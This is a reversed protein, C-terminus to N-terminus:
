ERILVNFKEIKGGQKKSQLHKYFWPSNLVPSYDVKRKWAVTTVNGTLEYATAHPFANYTGCISDGNEFLTSSYRTM